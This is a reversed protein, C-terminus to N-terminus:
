CTFFMLAELGLLVVFSLKAFTWYSIGVAVCLASIGSLSLLTTKVTVAWILYIGVLNRLVGNADAATGVDEPVDEAFAKLYVRRLALRNLNRSKAPDAVYEPLFRILAKGPLTILRGPPWLEYAGFVIAPVVNKKTDERLYFPGKKFEQLLGDKSRTGEPSICVSNGNENISVALEKLSKLASARNGRDIAVFEFGWRSTWGLFPVLFVSKKAAYKFAAPSFANVIFGDLNSAHSFMCVVSDKLDSVNERGEIRAETGAALCILYAMGWSIIDIPLYNKKWGLSRLYPGAFRLPIVFTLASFWGVLLLAFTAFRLLSYAQELQSRTAPLVDLRLQQRIADLRKNAAQMEPATLFQPEIGALNMQEELEVRILESELYLQRRAQNRRALPLDKALALAAPLKLEVAAAREEFRVLQLVDAATTAM